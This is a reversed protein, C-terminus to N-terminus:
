RLQALKLMSFEDVEITWDPPVVLTTTPAEVIAPGAVRNGPELRGMEYVKAETVTGGFHAPRTGKLAAPAPMPSSLPHKVFRPKVKAVSTSVGVEWIEFGTQPYKASASYVREYDIEFAAILKDFDAPTRIRDIPSEVLLDNLQRGYRISATFTTKWDGNQFGERQVEDRCWQELYEWGRNLREAAAMKQEDNPFPPVILAVSISQKHEIEASAAGFASFAASFPPVFVEKFKFGEAFGVVHTPGAGGFAIMVFDRPDYGRRVLCGELAERMQADILARIGAAAAITDMGLPKAVHNWIAQEARQRNLKISGGLFYDPDIYGLVLDADTVTPMQGGKDYAAPGPDAGASDPGVILRGSIADVRAITGGGAGISVIEAIPVSVIMQDVRPEQNIRIEGDIILGVDFSTGGVDCTVVNEHGYHKGFFRGGILGGVPGSQIQNVALCSGASAVGGMSQMVLLDKNFGKKQLDAQILKMNKEVLHSTYAQIVASCTRAFERWKPSVHVAEIVEIRDGVVERAIEAIRRENVNNLFDWLTIVVIAEVGEKLLDQAAARAEDEYVRAIVNGFCDVRERVGKILHRPILPIPKTHSQMHVRGVVDLHIWSSKGRGVQLVDEAGMTTIMGCRRGSYTLLANVVVTSGFGLVDLEGLLGDLTLGLQRAGNELSAYFGEVLNRRTTPAKAVVFNGEEDVFFSDTFTGGTDVYCIQQRASM